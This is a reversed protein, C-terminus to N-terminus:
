DDVRLLARADGHAAKRLIGDDVGPLKLLVEGPVVRKPIHKEDLPRRAGLPRAGGDDTEGAGSDVGVEVAGGPAAHVDPAAANTIVLAVVPFAVAVSRRRLM